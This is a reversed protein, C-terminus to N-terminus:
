SKLLEISLDSLEGNTVAVTVVQDQYGNKKITVKYVGAPLSKINFGGKEATKKTLVVEEKAASLGNAAAKQTPEVCEPCFNITVGKLPEGSAADTVTGKVALYGIGTNVIKRATRYGNYFNPQSLRIIEVAADMNALAADATEFLVVLQKTAQSTITANVRPTALVTNYANIAALFTTQTTETIGYSTLGAINSQARDYIIQAYDKLDTDSFNKFSSESIHVEGLLIQNNGFKAYATLKRANDAAITILSAALQTKSVTGGKKDIKQQEAVSQIQLITNELTTLNTIFNPLDATIAANPKCFDREAFYMGLRSEQGNTM